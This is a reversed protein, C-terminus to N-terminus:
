RASPSMQQQQQQQMPPFGHQHHLSFHEAIVQNFKFNLTSIAKFFHFLGPTSSRWQAHCSVLSASAATGSTGFWDSAQFATATFLVSQARRGQVSVTVPTPSAAHGHHSCPFGQFYSPCLSLLNLKKPCKRVLGFSKDASLEAKIEVPGSVNTM